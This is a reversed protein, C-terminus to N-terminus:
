WKSWFSSSAFSSTAINWTWNVVQPNGMKFHAWFFVFVKAVGGTSKKPKEHCLQGFFAVFVLGFQQMARPLLGTSTPRKTEQCHVANEECAWIPKVLTPQVFMLCSGLNWCCCCCCCGCLCLCCCCISSETAFFVYKTSDTCNTKKTFNPFIQNKCRINLWFVLWLKHRKIQWVRAHTSGLRFLRLRSKMRRTVPLFSRDEM